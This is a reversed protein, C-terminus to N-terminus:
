IKRFLLKVALTLEAEPLGEKGLSVNGALCSFQGPDAGPWQPQKSPEVDRRSATEQLIQCPGGWSLENTQEAGEKRPDGRQGSLTSGRPPHELLARSSELQAVATGPACSTGPHQWLQELAMGPACSTGPVPQTSGCSSWSSGWCWLFSQWPSSALQSLEFLM